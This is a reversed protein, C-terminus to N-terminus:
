VAVLQTKKRKLRLPFWHYRKRLQSITWTVTHPSLGHMAAIERVSLRDHWASLWSAYRIEAAALNRAARSRARETKRAEQQAARQQSRQRSRERLIRRTDVHLEHLIQGARVSSVGLRRAIEAISLGKIFMDAIEADREPSYIMNPM